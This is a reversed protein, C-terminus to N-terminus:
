FLPSLLTWAVILAVMVLTSTVFITMARHKVTVGGGGERVCRATKEIWERGVPRPLQGTV